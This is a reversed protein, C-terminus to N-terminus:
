EFLSASSIPLASIIPVYGGPNGQHQRLHRERQLGGDEREASEGRDAGAPGHHTPYFQNLRKGPGDQTIFYFTMATHGTKSKFVPEM